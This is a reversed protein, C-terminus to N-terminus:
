ANFLGRLMDWLTLCPVTVHDPEISHLKWYEDKALRNLEIATETKADLLQNTYDLQAQKLENAYALMIARYEPTDQINPM